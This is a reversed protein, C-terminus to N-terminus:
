PGRQTSRIGLGPLGTQCLFRNCANPLGHCTDWPQLPGAVRATSGPREADFSKPRAALRRAFDQFLNLPDDFSISDDPITISSGERGCCCLQVRCRVWRGDVDDGFTPWITALPNESDVLEVAVDQGDAHRLWPGIARFGEVGFGAGAM